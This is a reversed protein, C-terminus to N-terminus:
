IHVTMLSTIICKCHFSRVHSLLLAVDKAGKRAGGLLQPTLEFGILFARHANRATANCSIRTRTSISHHCVDVLQERQEWCSISRKGVFQLPMGSLRGSTDRSRLNSYM